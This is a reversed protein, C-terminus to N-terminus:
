KRKKVVLGDLIYDAIAEAMEEASLRGDPRYWETASGLVGSLMLVPLRRHGTKRFIKSAVGEDIIQVFLDEYNQRVELAKLRNEAGLYQWQHFTVRTQELQQALVKMHARIAERMKQDAPLDSEVVPRIADIFANIGSVVIDLLLDEKSSIHAYLSGPLIGVAESLDRMGIVPYGREGYLRIAAERIRERSVPEGRTATSRRAVRTEGEEDDHRLWSAM